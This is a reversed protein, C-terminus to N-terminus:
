APLSEVEQMRAPLGWAVGIHCQDGLMSISEGAFVLRFDRSRLPQILPIRPQDVAVQEPTTAQSNSPEPIGTVTEVSVVESRASSSAM